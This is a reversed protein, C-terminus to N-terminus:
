NKRAIWRMLGLLALMGAFWAEVAGGGGSSSATGTATSGTSTAPQIMVPTSVTSDAAIKRIAANGTDAVFLNGSGDLMLGRPQNFL